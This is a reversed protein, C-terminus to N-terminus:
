KAREGQEGTRARSIAVTAEADTALPALTLSTPSLIKATALVSFQGGVLYRRSAKTVGILQNPRASV